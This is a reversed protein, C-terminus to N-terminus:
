KKMENIIIQIDASSVKEDRNLDFLVNQDTPEKKMENVIVQIDATSIKGDNNLDYSNSRIEEINRFDRWGIASKYRDVTGSPVYLVSTSYTSFVSYSSQEGEINFPYEIYSIITTLGSCGYFAKAGIGRVDKPITLSDLATCGEFAWGGIYQLSNPIEMSSLSTCGSFAYDYIRTVSNPIVISTLGKCSSFAHDGITIVGEPIETNKCGLVLNNNNTSIIANCNNRSDYYTNEEDVIIEELESCLIFAGTGISSVGSGIKVSKLNSCRQFAMNGIKTVSSPITLSTFGTGYGFSFDGISTVNDPIILDTIEEGNLLLHNAFTLPNSMSTDFSINCWSELSSINVSVLELCRYFANNGIHAVSSPITVSTISSSEFAGDGISTVSYDVDDYTISAPIDVAGTYKNPNKTVEAVANDLSLNYYVGNIEVAATAHLPMLMMLLYFKLKKM